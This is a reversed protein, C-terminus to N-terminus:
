LGTTQNVDTNDLSVHLSVALTFTSSSSFLVTTATMAAAASPEVGLELMLPGNVMGGGIGFMGSVTGAGMAILPFWQVSKPNWQVEDPSLVYRPNQQRYFTAVINKYAYHSYVMLFITPLFTAIVFLFSNPSLGIISPIQPSGAILHLM